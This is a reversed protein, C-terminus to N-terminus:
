YEWGRWPIKQRAVPLEEGRGERIARREDRRQTRRTGAKVDRTAKAANRSREGGHRRGDQKALKERKKM